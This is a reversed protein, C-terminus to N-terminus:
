IAYVSHPTGNLELRFDPIPEIGEPASVSVSHAKVNVSQGLHTWQKVLGV